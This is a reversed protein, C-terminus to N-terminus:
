FADKYVTVKDTNIDFIELRKSDQGIIKYVAAVQM